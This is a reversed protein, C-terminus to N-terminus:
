KQVKEETGNIEKDIMKGTGCQRSQQIKIFIRSSNHRISKKVISFKRYTFM